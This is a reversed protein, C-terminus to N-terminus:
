KARLERMEEEFSDRRDKMEKDFQEKKLHQAEILAALDSAATEIEYLTNLEEKKARIAEQIKKFTELEKEYRESLMTLERNFTEKLDHLRKLPNQEAESEATAIAVKKEMEKLRKQVNLLEKEKALLRDKVIKYAELMEKKTNSMTLNRVEKSDNM